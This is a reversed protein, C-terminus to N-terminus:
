RLERCNYEIEALHFKGYVFEGEPLHWVAEGYSAVKRGDINVYDKLPTTWRYNKYTIGDESLYRDDSSFDILAGESNFSLIAAITNGKNTYTAKATTSDISEWQIATDILAAPAMVCMDNFLTVTEGKTMTPGKADVVNFLSAVKIQMTANSRVYLHLGDFPIGFLSSEILFIRAPEDMFNYQRSAFDMWGSSLTRRFQGSYKARFNQIRPKGIAGAYRLYRQVPAPLHVIDSESVMPMQSRRNIGRQAETKYIDRFSGPLANAISILLPVLIIVTGITGFKADKWSLFILTQSILIALIGTAWWYEWDALYVTATAVFLLAVLLWLIGAQRSIHQTLQHANTLGYAKAFGLTHVLGHIIIISSFFYKM